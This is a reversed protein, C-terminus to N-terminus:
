VKLAKRLRGPIMGPMNKLMGTTIKMNKDKRKRLISFLNFAAVAEGPETSVSQKLDKHGKQFAPDCCRLFINTSWEEKLTSPVTLGNRKDSRIQKAWSLRAALEANNPDEQLGFELNKVTYEHGVFVRTEPKLKGLTESLDKFLLEYTGELCRGCGGVFM